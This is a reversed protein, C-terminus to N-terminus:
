NPLSVINAGFPLLSLKALKLCQSAFPIGIITIAFILASLLYSLAFEWGFFIVWIVNMIPHKDFNLDADNGFPLASLNAIKFCQLGAPIGIITVCLVVGLLAWSIWSALGILLFWLINGLVKM